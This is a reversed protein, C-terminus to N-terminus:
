SGTCRWRSATSPRPRPVTAPTGAPSASCWTASRWGAVSSSSAPIRTSSSNICRSRRASRPIPRRGRAPEISCWPWATAVRRSTRRLEKSPEEEVRKQLLSLAKQYEAEAEAPRGAQSLLLGLNNHTAALSSRFDESPRDVVLTEYLKVAERYHAEAQAPQATRSLLYAFGDLCAALGRRDEIAGPNEGALKRYHAIAARYEDAAETTKGTAFLRGAIATLSRGVDSRTAADAGPEAALAERATLVARHTALADENRGVKGTLEALEYNSQVLARRSAVDAEEGLLASLRAYFDAASTLLRDRLEKFQDQKLLFDESVGTHFTKIAEVALDYRAQVASKSRSLEENATTLAKSVRTEHALSASLRTNAAAQVALVASLGVVGALVAAAAGTVGTRHRTLWRILTRTWPERWATVSEDAMWREIDDALARGSPYRVEPRMAMAKLCIAELARDISPNVARPPAFEGRRVRAIIELTDGEYPPKGTLLCYLTAGLSYVDSRPGLKELEGAAQEPSMYAPTGLASGPLTEASGSASSPVLLREGSDTGPEVRGTAKALGWDVLLTEGHRGVIINSPKIDRHLVGRSHAYEIANCVDLFRRLLRRLELGARDETGAHFREIADKLSDGQIFRMAYYPRGGDHTGLSYVPVIGPHELGGTIEAELLFRHRSSTEDAHHDLIQKLAVERNLERDLAVFVEGLGGRAHPRLIRFRRADATATGIADGTTRDGEDRDVDLTLAPEALLHELRRVAADSLRSLSERTSRTLELGALSKEADGGHTALHEALLAEILARRPTTLAGQEVLLDAMARGPSAAWAGFAAVLQPQNVLGNQVRWCASSCTARPTM